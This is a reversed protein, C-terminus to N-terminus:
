VARGYSKDRRMNVPATKAGANTQSGVSDSPSDCHVFLYRAKYACYGGYRRHARHGRRRCLVRRFSQGGLGVGFQQLRDRVGDREQRRIVQRTAAFVPIHLERPVVMVVAPETAVVMMMMMMAEMAMVMM